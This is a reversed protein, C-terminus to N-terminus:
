AERDDEPVPFAQAILEEVEARYSAYQARESESALRAEIEASVDEFMRLVMENGFLLRHGSRFRVLWSLNEAMAATGGIALDSGIGQLWFGVVQGILDGEALSRQAAVDHMTEDGRLRSKVGVVIEDGADRLIEDIQRDTV